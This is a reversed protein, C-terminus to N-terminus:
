YPFCQNISGSFRFSLSLSRAVPHVCRQGPGLAARGGDDSRYICAGPAHLINGRVYSPPLTHTRPTFTHPLSSYYYYYIFLSFDYSDFTTTTHRASLLWNDTSVGVRNLAEVIAVEVLQSRDGGLVGAHEVTMPSRHTDAARGRSHGTQKNKEQSKNSEALLSIINKIELTTPLPKFYVELLSFVWFQIPDSEAPELYVEMDLYNFTHTM